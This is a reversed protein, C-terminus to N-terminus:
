VILHSNLSCVHFVCFCMRWWFDVHVFVSGQHRFLTRSEQWLPIRVKRTKKEKEQGEQQEAKATRYREAVACM